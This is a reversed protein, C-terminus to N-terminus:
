WFFMEGLYIVQFQLHSLSNKFFEEKTLKKDSTLSIVYIFVSIGFLPGKGQGQLDRPGWILGLISIFQKCLSPRAVNSVLSPSVMKGELM